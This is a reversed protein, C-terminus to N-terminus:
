KILHKTHSIVSLVNALIWSVFNVELPKEKGNHLFNHIM